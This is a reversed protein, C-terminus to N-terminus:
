SKNKRGKWVLLVVIAAAAACFLVLWVVPQSEDGTQPLIGVATSQPTSAPLVTPAPTVEPGPTPTAEPGQPPQESEPPNGKVSAEVDYKWAETDEAYPLAVLFPECQGYAAASTQTVLYIGEALDSFLAKGSKDTRAAIGALKQAEVADQLQHAAAQRDEAYQLHNLDVDVNRLAPVLEWAMQPGPVQQGVLYCCFEVQGMPTGCEQLQISISGKKDPDYSEAMAVAPILAALVLLVALFSLASVARHRKNM